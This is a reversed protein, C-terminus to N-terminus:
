DWAGGGPGGEGAARGWGAGLGGGGATWGVGEHRGFCLPSTVMWHRSLSLSTALYLPTVVQTVTADRDGM